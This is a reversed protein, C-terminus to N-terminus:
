LTLQELWPVERWYTTVEAVFDMRAKAYELFNKLDKAEEVSLAQGSRIKEEIEAILYALGHSGPNHSMNRAMIAAVASRLSFRRQIEIEEYFRIPSLYKFAIDMCKEIEEPSLYQNTFVIIIGISLPRPKVGSWIPVLTLYNYWKFFKAMGPLYIDFFLNSIDQKYAKLLNNLQDPIALSTDIKGNHPLAIKIMGECIKIWFPNLQLTEWRIEPNESREFVFVYAKKQQEIYYSLAETLNFHIIVNKFFDGWGYSDIEDHVNGDACYYHGKVRENLIKSFYAIYCVSDTHNIQQLILQALPKYVKKEFIQEIDSRAHFLKAWDQELLGSLEDELELRTMKNEEKFAVPL